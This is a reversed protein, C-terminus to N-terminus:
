ETFVPEDKYYEFIKENTEGVKFIFVPRTTYKGPVVLIKGFEGQFELKEAKMPQASLLFDSLKKLESIYVKARDSVSEDIIDVYFIRDYYRKEIIDKIKSWFFGIFKLNKAGIFRFQPIIAAANRPTDLIIICGINDLYESLKSFIEQNDKPKRKLLELGKERFLPILDIGEYEINLPSSIGFAWGVNKIKEALERRDKPYVISTAQCNIKKKLFIFVSESLYSLDPIFYIQKKTIENRRINIVINKLNSHMPTSSFNILIKKGDKIETIFADPIFNFSGFEQLAYFFIDQNDKLFNPNLSTVFSYPVKSVSLDKLMKIEKELLNIVESTEIPFSIRELKLAPENKLESIKEEAEEFKGEKLYKIAENLLSETDGKNDKASLNMLAIAIIIIYTKKIKM